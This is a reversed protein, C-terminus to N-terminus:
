EETDPFIDKFHEVASYGDIQRPPRQSDPQVISLLHRIGYQRASDLVRLNDDILLTRDPNFPEVEQLLDWFAPDEKPLGFDHACIVADVRQDLQTIEVKLDLSGHHANTVIVSRMDSRQLRDLFDTVHPRFAIKDVVETKMAAIDVGLQESWYDICYWNLTGQERTIRDHLHARAQQEDIQHQEAYRVPLHELWFYSDFHLDLLTGDMDLLVTDVSQWNVM